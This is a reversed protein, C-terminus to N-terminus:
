FMTHTMQHFVINSEFKSFYLFKKYIMKKLVNTTYYNHIFILVHFKKITDQVIKM